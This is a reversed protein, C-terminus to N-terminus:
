HFNDRKNLSFRGKPLSELCFKKNDHFTGGGDYGKGIIKELLTRTIKSMKFLLLIAHSERYKSLLPLNSLDAPPPHTGYFSDM